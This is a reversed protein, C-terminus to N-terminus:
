AVFFDSLEAFVQGVAHRKRRRHEVPCRFFFDVCHEIESIRVFYRLSQLQRRGLRLRAQEIAPGALNELARHGNAIHVHQLQM